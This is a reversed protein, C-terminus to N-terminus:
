PLHRVAITIITASAFASRITKQIIEDTEVDVSATAEDLLLIKSNRLLARALCILQRQGVSFNEGNDTVPSLLGLKKPEAPPEPPEPKANKKAKKPPGGAKPGAGKPGRGKPKPPATKMEKVVSKLQVRQLAAWLEKDSFEDFPDLNSRLTGAFLTPEQPIISLKSRLDELGIKSIDLGDIKISGSELEVFRFLTVLISSKGAGTRGVVGVKQGGEFKVNLKNLIIPMDPRYRM